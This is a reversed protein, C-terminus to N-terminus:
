NVYKRPCPLLLLQQDRELTWECNRAAIIQGEIYRYNGCRKKSLIAVFFLFVKNTYIRKIIFIVQVFIIAHHMSFVTM